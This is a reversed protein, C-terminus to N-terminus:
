GDDRGTSTSTSPGTSTSTAGTLLSRRTPALQLTLPANTLRPSGAAARGIEDRAQQAADFTARDSYGAFWVFVDEDDRVPLAPFNNPREETVLCALVAAGSGVIRPALEDDFYSMTDSDAPANLNLITAEVVGRDLGNDADLPPREDDLTFASGDRAPRLLLVDDSDVMTRNAADRNRKWVPGGYFDGLSRGRSGMSGFGRLWVFKTEDGLDRFTGIIKMGSTEQSEVLNAEFLDILVDRMGPLLTYQRLEVIPSFDV